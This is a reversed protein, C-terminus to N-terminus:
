RLSIAQVPCRIIAQKVSELDQESLAGHSIVFAKEEDDMEFVSSATMVCLAHGDCLDADIHIHPTTV